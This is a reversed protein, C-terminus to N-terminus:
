ELFIWSFTPVEGVDRPSSSLWLAPNIPIMIASAGLHKNNDAFNPTKEVCCLLNCHEGRMSRLFYRSLM